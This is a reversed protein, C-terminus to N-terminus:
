SQKIISATINDSLLPSTKANIQNAAVFEPRSRHGIIVTQQTHQFFLKVYKLIGM